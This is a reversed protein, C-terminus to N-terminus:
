KDDTILDNSLRLVYIFSHLEVIDWVKIKM